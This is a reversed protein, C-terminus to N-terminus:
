KVKNGVSGWLTFVAQATETNNIFRGRVPDTEDAMMQLLETGPGKAYFPILVNSHSGHYWEMNPMEGKGNGTVPNFVDGGSDPGWLYGCEHDGTVVVLTEDWSSNAEVWAVVADVSKNFDHMEELMRASNNAHSAWDVAGGEIMLFLGDPDNDLVNLAAKTMEELTPINPSFPTDGPKVEEDNGPRGQQLTGPSKPVGVVRKPTDGEMLARFEEADQLLKWADAQGDGDIDEVTNGELEVAGDQLAKWMAEGGVYKYEKEEEVPVGNNFDPNGCGMVVDLQSDLFMSQAIKAYNGRSENHTAFGAPTAHSLPVSTIVGAAKGKAKAAESLLLLNNKELDVGIAGNYTKVGAAMATGSAASDTPRNKHYEFDAWAADPNYGVGWKTEEEWPKSTMAPYTSVAIAMPFSEYVQGKEKGLYFHNAAKVHNYGWGDAIMYIVNKPAKVTLDNPADAQQEACGALLAATMLTLTFAVIAFRKMITEGYEILFSLRDPSVM